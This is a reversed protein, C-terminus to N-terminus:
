AIFISLTGSLMALSGIDTAFRRNFNLYNVFDRWLKCVVKIETPRGCLPRFFGCSIAYPARFDSM